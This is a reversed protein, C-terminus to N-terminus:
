TTGQPRQQTRTEHSAVLFSVLLCMTSLTIIISGPFITEAPSTLGTFEALNNVRFAVALALFAALRPAWPMNLTLPLLLAMFIFDYTHMPVFLLVVVILLGATLQAHEQDLDQKWHNFGQVVCLLSAAFCGSLVYVLAPFRFGMFGNVFSRIGTMSFPGNLKMAEYERARAVYESVISDLGSVAVPPISSSLVIMAAAILSPWWFPWVLLFACFVLGATPKLMVVIIAFTMLIRNRWLLATVFCAAGLFLLPSTQGASLSVPTAFMLSTYFVLMSFVFIDFRDLSRSYGLAAVICGSLICIASILRWVYVGNVYDLSAMAVAIPAWNPSYVWQFLAVDDGFISRGRQLFVESYPNLGENWLQGAIWIYKFDVTDQTYFISKIALYYSASSLLFIITVAKVIQLTRGEALASGLRAACNHISTM